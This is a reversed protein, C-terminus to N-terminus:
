QLSTKLYVKFHTQPIYYYICTYLKWRSACTNLSWIPYQSKYPKKKLIKHWM